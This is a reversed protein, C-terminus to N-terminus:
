KAPGEESPLPVQIAKRLLKQGPKFFAPEGHLATASLV